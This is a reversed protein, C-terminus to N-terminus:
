NKPQEIITETTPTTYPKNKKGFVSVNVYRTPNLRLDQLLLELEKSTKTLNNYMADDSLLKGMTGKGQELNAMIGNVNTLTAELKKVTAGLDAKDLSTSINNLNASTKEFNSLTSSLKPKTDVLIGNINKSAQSFESMTVELSAIAIKLKQQTAADLTANLNEILKNANELLIEVKDKVPGIQNALEATLGLKASTQLTDGSEVFNKDSFNNLIAIERGGILGTDKIQAISSKAIKIQENTIVLEVNMKGDPLMEISNVKGITLGNITVPAAVVLGSVNDYVAYLKNSSDFLNRGKLFTFGWYFLVISLIVLVAVKIERTIKM